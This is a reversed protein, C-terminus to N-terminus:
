SRHKELGRGAHSFKDNQGNICTLNLGSCPLIAESPLYFVSLFNLLRLVFELRRTLIYHVSWHGYPLAYLFFIMRRNAGLKM